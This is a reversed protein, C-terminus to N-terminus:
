PQVPLWGSELREDLIVWRHEPTGLHDTRVDMLADVRDAWETELDWIQKGPLFLYTLGDVANVSAIFEDITEDSLSSYSAPAIVVRLEEPKTDPHEELAAQLRVDFREVADSTVDPRIADERTSTSATSRDFGELDIVHSDSSATSVHGPFWESAGSLRGVTALIRVRDLGPEGMVRKSVLRQVPGALDGVVLVSCGAKKLHGLADSLDDVPGGGRFSASEM